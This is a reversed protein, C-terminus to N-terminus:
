CTTAADHSAGSPSGVVSCKAPSKRTKKVQKATPAAAPTERKPVRIANSSQTLVCYVSEQPWDKRQKNIRSTPCLLLADGFSFLPFASVVPQGRRTEVTGWVTSDFDEKAYTKTLLFSAGVPDRVNMILAAAYVIAAPSGPSIVIAMAGIGLVAMLGLVLRKFLDAQSVYFIVVPLLAACATFMSIFMLRNIAEPTDEGIYAKLILSAPFVASIVTGVLLLTLMLMFWGVIPWRATNGTSAQNACTKVAERFTKRALMSAVALIYWLVTWFILWYKNLEPAKFIQWLMAVIGIFVPLFIIGTLKPQLPQADNFLSVTLGFLVTTSLLILIYAALMGIVTALWPFVASKAELAAAIIDARGIATAYTSLTYFGLLAGLGTFIVSLPAWFTLVRKLNKKLAQVFTLPRANIM